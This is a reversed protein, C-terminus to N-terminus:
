VQGRVHEWRGLVAHRTVRPKKYDRIAKKRVFFSFLIMQFQNLIRNDQSTGLLGFHKENDGDKGKSRWGGGGREGGGGGGVGAKAPM